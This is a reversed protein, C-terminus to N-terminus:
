SSTGEEVWAKLHAYGDQEEYFIFKGGMKRADELEARAGASDQWGKIMFVADCKRMLALTAELWFRDTITGHFFRSNTHPCLPAAGLRAVEFAAEEARRANKETEWGNPGRFKGAIYIVRM